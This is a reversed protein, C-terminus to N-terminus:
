WELRYVSLAPPTNPTESQYKWFVNVRSKLKSSLLEGIKQMSEFESSGFRVLTHSIRFKFELSYVIKLEDSITNVVAPM